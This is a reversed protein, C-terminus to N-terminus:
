EKGETMEKVLNDITKYVDTIFYNDGDPNNMSREINDCIRASLREAFEQIAEYRALKAKGKYHLVIDDSKYCSQLLLNLEKVLEDLDKYEHRYGNLINTYFVAKGNEIKFGSTDTPEQIKYLRENEKLAETIKNILIQRCRGSYNEIGFLPCNSCKVLSFTCCELAKIIQEQTFKKDEM